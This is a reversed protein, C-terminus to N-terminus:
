KIGNLIYEIMLMFGEMRKEDSLNKGKAEVLFAVPLCSIWGTIVKPPYDFGLDPASLKEPLRKVWADYNQESQNPNEAENIQHKESMLLWGCIPIISPRHTFYELESLMLIYIYETFDKAESSNETIITRLLQLEKDILSKIMENKNAFYEYLSSKAMGLEDAIREVTVGPIKYKEIVAALATFMRNEKPFTEEDIKCLSIMENKRSDSIQEPHIPSNSETTGSLGSLMLNVIKDGYNEPIKPICGLKVFREQIKVFFFISMACFIHKSFDDISTKFKELYSKGMFPVGRSGCKEGLHEEYNPNSSMQAILYNIHSTNAVFYDILGAFNKNVVEKDESGLEKLFVALNDVVRNEMEDLLADKNLFYRYIAPKSFGTKTALENMSFSSFGPEELFSFATDLIIEKTPKSNGNRAM